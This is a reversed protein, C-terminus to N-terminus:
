GVSQLFLKAIRYLDINEAGETGTSDADMGSKNEIYEDSRFVRMDGASIKDLGGEGRSIRDSVIDASTRLKTVEEETNGIFIGTLEGNNLTFHAEAANNDPMEVRIHVSGKEEGGTEFSLSVQALEDGIYMPLIYEENSALGGAISLQKHMLKMDRVDISTDAEASWEEVSAKLATLMDDYAEKFDQSDDLKEWVDGMDTGDESPAESQERIRRDIKSFLKEEGHLLEQAALLNEASATIEGRQLLAAADADANVSERLHALEESYYEAAAEDTYSVETLIEDVSSVFSRAIQDSISEGNKIIETVTGFSDEVKVDLHKFRSSRVASLLNSFQLEAQTNVLAGVAAGDSNEIQRLMRFVGIYSEREEESIDGRHELNYLFRSYSEARDEYEEQNNDFYSELEDFTNELPNIGDRIMQLTSAPTMKKIVSQVQSDAASVREINEATIEMSNYGLIRVARRNEDNLELEMDAIIDDVNAFAKEIRDGLDKRPATMLAEYSESARAYKDRLASGQAHLESLTIETSRLSFGGIIQAPMSPIESVVRDTENMLRYKSVAEATDPFYKGALEEEAQKLAEVLEEMPATDISFDSKLLKVNVEATMRLRIEELQRRAAINDEINEQAADSMFYTLIDAAKEYISGSDSLDAHIPNEGEAIANAAAVAFTEETIPLECSKINSLRQLNEATIPLGRDLLWEASERVAENVELGSQKIIRDIEEQMGDTDSGARMGYYGQINEAFYIGSSSVADKSGSNEALYFNWIEPELENDIMYSVAGDDPPALRSAMDWAQAVQKLNDGTLPIDAQAFSDAVARALTESGIASSLTDIDIDDNYGAIIQGSAALEAKIKDVITVATDPDMNRFDFGDEELRAYDEESLTNSMVTMYDQRVGADINGAEQQLEILSKGKEGGQKGGASWMEGEGTLIDAQFVASRASVVGSDQNTHKTHVNDGYQREMDSISGTQFNIRM